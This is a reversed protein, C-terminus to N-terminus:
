ILNALLLPFHAIDALLKMIALNGIISVGGNSLNFQLFRRLALQPKDRTRNAWTYREHWIFNHLIAVEVACTTASLMALGAVRTLVSLVALQVAVGALGAVNFRLYRTLLSDRM